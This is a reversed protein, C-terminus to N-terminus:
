TVAIRGIGRWYHLAREYTLPQMFGVSAGGEVCDVLIAALSDLEAPTAQSIRRIDM